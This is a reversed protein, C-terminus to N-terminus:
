FASGTLLVDIVALGALMTVLAVGVLTILFGLRKLITEERHRTSLRAGRPTWGIM